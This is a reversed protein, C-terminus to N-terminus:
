STTNQGQNDHCFNLRFRGTFDRSRLADLERLQHVLEASTFAVRRLREKISAAQMVTGHLKGGRLVCYNAMPYNKWSNIDDKVGFKQMGGARAVVSEASTKRAEM